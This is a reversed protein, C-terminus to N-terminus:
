KCELEIPMTPDSPQVVKIESACRPGFMFIRWEDSTGRYVVQVKEKTTASNGIGLALLFGICLIKKM